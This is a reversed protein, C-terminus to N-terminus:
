KRSWYHPFVQRLRKAVWGTPDDDRPVGVEVEGGWFALRECCIGCPPLIVFTSDADERSVCVCAIVAEGLKHAECIARRTAFHRLHIPASLLLM